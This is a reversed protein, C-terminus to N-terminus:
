LRAKRNEYNKLVGVLERDRIVFEVKGSPSNDVGNRRRNDMMKELRDLPIIAEPGKEGFIGMTARTAVGGEAFKPLGQLASVISAVMGLGMAVGVFPIFSHAAMTEAAADGLAANMKARHAMEQAKLSSITAVGSVVEQALSAVLSVISGTTGGIADGLRGFANTLGDLGTMMASDQLEKWEAIAANAEKQSKEYAKLSEIQPKLSDGTLGGAAAKLQEIGSNGGKATYGEAKLGDTSYGTNGMQTLTGGVSEMRFKITMVRDQLMNQLDQVVKEAEVQASTGVASSAAKQADKVLKQLHEVSVEPQVAGGKGQIRDIEAEIEKLSMVTEKHGGGGGVGGDEGKELRALQTRYGEIAKANGYYAITLQDLGELTEDNKRNLLTNTVISEGYTENLRKIAADYDDVSKGAKVVQITDSGEGFGVSKTEFYEKNLKAVEEHYTKVNKAAQEKLEDRNEKSDLTQANLVWDFKIEKAGLNTWSAVQKSIAGWQDTQVVGTAANMSEVAKKADELAAKYEETGKKAGRLRTMAKQYELGEKANVVGLSMLSNGLQDLANAADGAKAIIGSIGADFASWDGSTLAAFFNDVATKMQVQTREFAEQLAQSNNMARDFLQHAGVAAGVAPVLKTWSGALGALSGMGDKGFDRLKKAANDISRDYQRTEAIVRVVAAKQAM